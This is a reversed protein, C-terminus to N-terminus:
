FIPTQTIKEQNVYKEEQKGGLARKLQKASTLPCHCNILISGSNGIDPEFDAGFAM